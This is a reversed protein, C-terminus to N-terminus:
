LTVNYKSHFNDMKEQMIRWTITILKREDPFQVQGTFGLGEESRTFEAFVANAESITQAVASAYEPSGTAFLPITNILFNQNPTAQCDFDDGCGVGNHSNGTVNSCGAPNISFFTDNRLLCCSYMNEWSLYISLYHM